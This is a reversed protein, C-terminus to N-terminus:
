FINVNYFNSKILRKDLSIKRVDFGYSMFLTLELNGGNEEVLKDVKTRIRPLQYLRKATHEFVAQFPYIFSGLTKIM